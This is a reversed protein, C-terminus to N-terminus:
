CMLTTIVQVVTQDCSEDDRFHLPASWWREWWKTAESRSEEDPAQHDEQATETSATDKVKPPAIYFRIDDMKEHRQLIRAKHKKAEEEIISFVKEQQSFCM